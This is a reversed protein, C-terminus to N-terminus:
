RPWVPAFCIKFHGRLRALNLRNPVQVEDAAPPPGYGTEPLMIVSGLAGVPTVVAGDTTSQYAVAQPTAAQGGSGGSIPVPTVPMFDGTGGPTVTLSAEGSDGNDGGDGDDGGSAAVKIKISQTTQTGDLWSVILRYETTSAPCEEADYKEEPVLVPNKSDDHADFEVKDLDGKVLWSFTVCEGPNIKRDDVRFDISRGTPTAPTGSPSTATAHPDPTGAVTPTWTPATTPTPLAASDTTPEQAIAAPTFGNLGVCVIAWLCVLCVATLTRYSVHSKM